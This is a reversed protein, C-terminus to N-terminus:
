MLGSGSNPERVLEALAADSVGEARLAQAVGARDAVPRNQSSKFKGTFGTVAIEFGVIARLKAARFDTPADAVQWRPTRGREHGDTLSEVLALLWAADDIFRITGCLHVAAYNWTPVVQGHKATSAYWSPSIYHDAGRFITLVPSGSPLQRWLANARAVHGRLQWLGDTGRLLQMPLHEASLGT